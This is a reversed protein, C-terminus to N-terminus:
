KDKEWQLYPYGDDITWIDAFDWENYTTIDQLALTNLGKGLASTKKGSTEVDWYISTYEISVEEPIAGVLGGIETNGKVEGTSYNYNLESSGLVFGVLGGVKNDGTVSCTTYSNAISGYGNQGVLGGIMSEGEVHGDAFSESIILSNLGALGGVSITGKIKDFKAYSDKIFGDNNGVLGGINSNEGNVEVEAYSNEIGGYNKGVLGGISNVGSVNGKAFSEKILITNLGVLGGVMEKGIVDAIAYSNYIDAGIDIVGVLGGVINNGFVEGNFYSRNIEGSYTNVGVLGGVSSNGTINGKVFSNNIKGGNNYGVLGGVNDNGIIELNVLGLNKIEGRNVTFLGLNNRDAQNIYLNSLENGQGDFVGNFGKIPEFEVFEKLDIDNMLQYYADSPYKDSAILSLNEPIYIQYPSVETGEGILGIEYKALIKIEEDIEVGDKILIVIKNDSEEIIEIQESKIDWGSFVYGPNAQAELSITDDTFNEDKEQYIDIYGAGEPEIRTKLNSKEIFYAYVKTDSNIVLYKYPNETIDDGGFNWHSFSWNEDAVAELKVKEKPGYINKDPDLEVNGEGVIEVTLNNFFQDSECAILVFISILILLLLLKKLM